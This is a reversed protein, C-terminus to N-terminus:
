SAHLGTPLLIRLLERASAEDSVESFQGTLGAVLLWRRADRRGVIEIAFSESAGRDDYAINAPGYTVERTPSLYKSIQTGRGLFRITRGVARDDDFACALRNSGIEFHLQLTKGGRRAALRLSQDTFELQSLSQKLTAPGVTDLIRTSVTSTLLGLIVIVVLLELLTFGCRIRRYSTEIM